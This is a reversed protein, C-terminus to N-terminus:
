ITRKYNNYRRVDFGRENIWTVEDGVNIMRQPLLLLEWRINHSTQGFSFQSMITFILLLLTHKM